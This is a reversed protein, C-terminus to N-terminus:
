VEWRIQGVIAEYSRPFNGHLLANRQRWIHYICSGLCLKALCVKLSKDKLKAVSWVVVSDWDFPPASFGCDHIVSYWIRRSFGCHFFLHDCSEMCGYCSLCNSPGAYGWACMRQKTVLADHFVLWLIFSLKPIAMSFWMLKWWIVPPKKERLVEWMVACSYVGNSSNWVPLDADGIIVEDLRSQIEVIEESRAFPWHWAGEKLITSLKAGLPFGLDYVVGYAFKDLLYGFPHWHDFWLFINRGKGVKLQIFLKAIDRLQLL